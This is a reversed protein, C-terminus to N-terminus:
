SAETKLDGEAEELDGTESFDPSTSCEVTTATLARARSSGEPKPPPLKQQEANECDNNNDHPHHPLTIMSESSTTTAASQRREHGNWFRSWWSTSRSSPPSSPLPSGKVVVVEEDYMDPMQQKHCGDELEFVADSDGPDPLGDSNDGISKGDDDTTTTTEDIEYTKSIVVCFNEDAPAKTWGLKWCVVCYFGIVVAEVLGYFLPVAVAQARADSGDDNGFMNIAVGTAIGVNQYCCEVAIAVTEPPKLRMMRSRSIATAIALGSVVPFIVGVYFAWPQNWLKPSPPPPDLDADGSGDSVSSNRRVGSGVGSSLLASVVILLIGCLSGFRNAWKHLRPTDWFTGVILGSLIAGIVLGLTVFLAGFDLANVVSNKVIDSSGSGSSTANNSSISATATGTSTTATDDGGFALYTYLLLNAPLLGVALLSSVTTMAVSLTLDANFTSCWWNSYSGGPSSTVVLLTLAMPYTLGFDRLMWVSVFGLAPIVLFQMAVGTGIARINSLQNRLRRLDVTASLGFILGFLLVNSLVTTFCSLASEGASSPPPTSSLLLDDEMAISANLSRRLATKAAAVSTDAIISDDYNLM